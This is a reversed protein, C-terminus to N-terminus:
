TLARSINLEIYQKYFECIDLYLRRDWGEFGATSCAVSSTYCKGHAIINNAEWDYLHCCLQNVDTQKENNSEEM